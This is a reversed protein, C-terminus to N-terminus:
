GRIDTLFEVIAESAEEPKEEQVWHGAGDILRKSRLDAASPLCQTNTTRPM